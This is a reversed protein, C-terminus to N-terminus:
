RDPPPPPPDGPPPGGPGGPGGMPPPGHRRDRLRARYKDRQEPTLVREIDADLQARLADFEQRTKSQFQELRGAGQKFAEEVQQQQTSNLGLERSLQSAMAAPSPRPPPRRGFLPGHLFRGGVIGLGVGLIFILAVFLAFWLRRQALANM